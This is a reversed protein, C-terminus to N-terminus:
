PRSPTMKENEAVKLTRGTDAHRMVAIFVKALGSDAKLSKVEIPKSDL